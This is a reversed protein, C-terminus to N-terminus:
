SFSATSRLLIQSGQKEIGPQGIKQVCQKIQREFERTTEEDKSEEDLYDSSTFEQLWKDLLLKKSTPEHVENSSGITRTASVLKTKDENIDKIAGLLQIIEDSETHSMERPSELRDRIAKFIETASKAHRAKKRRGWYYKDELSNLYMNVLVHNGTRQCKHTVHGAVKKIFTIINNLEGSERIKSGEKLLSEFEIYGKATLKLLADTFYSFVAVKDPRKQELYDELKKRFNKDIAIVTQIERIVSHVLCLDRTKFVYYYIFRYAMDVMCDPPLVPLGNYVSLQSELTKITCEKLHKMMRCIDPLLPIVFQLNDRFVKLTKQIDKLLSSEMYDMRSVFEVDQGDDPLEITSLITCLDKDITKEGKFDEDMSHKTPTGNADYLVIKPDSGADVLGIVPRNKEKYVANISNESPFVHERIHKKEGNLIKGSIVIRGPNCPRATSM